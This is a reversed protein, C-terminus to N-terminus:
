IPAGIGPREKEAGAIPPEVGPDAEADIADLDAEAREAPFAPDGLHVRVAEAVREGGPRDGLVGALEIHLVQEPVARRVHHAAVAGGIAALLGGHSM